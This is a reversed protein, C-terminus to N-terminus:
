PEVPRGRVDPIRRDHIAPDHELVALLDDARLVAVAHGAGAGREVQAGQCRDDVADGDLGLGDVAASQLSPSVSIVASNGGPGGAGIGTGAGADPVVLSSTGSAIPEATASVSPTYPRTCSGVKTATFTAPKELGWDTFAQSAVPAPTSARTCSTEASTM